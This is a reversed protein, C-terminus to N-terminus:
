MAIVPFCCLQMLAFVAMAMDNSKNYPLCSQFPKVRRRKYNSLEKFARCRFLLICDIQAISLLVYVHIPPYQSDARRDHRYRAKDPLLCM